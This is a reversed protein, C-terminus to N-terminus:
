IFILLDLGHWVADRVAPMSDRKREFEARTYCHVDAPAGMELADWLSGAVYVRELWPIEDFADSVLVVTFEVQRGAALSQEAPGGTLATGGLYAGDLRWRDSIRELYRRLETRNLALTAQVPQNDM